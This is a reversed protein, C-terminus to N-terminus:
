SPSGKFKVTGALKTCNNNRLKRIDRYTEAIARDAQAQTLTHEKVYRETQPIGSALLQRLTRRLQNGTHCSKLIVQREGEVVQIRNVNSHVYADHRAAAIQQAAFQRTKNEQTGANSEVQAFGLAISVALTLYALGPALRKRFLRRNLEKEEGKRSDRVDALERLAEIQEDTFPIETM